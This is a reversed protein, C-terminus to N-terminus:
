HCDCSSPYKDAVLLVLLFTGILEGAFDHLLSTSNRLLPLLTTSNTQPCPSNM